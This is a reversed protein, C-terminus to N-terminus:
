ADDDVGSAVGEKELESVADKEPSVREVGEITGMFKISSSDVGDLKGELISMVDEVTQMRSVYEGDKGTQKKVAYFSQTMYSKLLLSRTYILQDDASLESFGVLSVIKELNAAQELMGKARLYADYHRDGIIDPNLATSASELLDIAPYRGEQYVDRSLIVFTDLYPFISRVGYDTMDDSPVFIAEIATVHNNKTSSLREHIEGMESNLTPQYGDESPISNMLISLERGAQAFRYANDMLFLVNKQLDDRFHAALASSAYATRSRIAPNEGMQGLILTTFDFAPTKRLTDYLEQAERSREGVASFVALSDGANSNRILLNNILETLLITKGVGAGGFLGVKGGKLIPAFFDVVKIGTELVEKPIAVEDLVKANTEHIPIMVSKDIPGEPDHADGFIDMVRGLVHEGGPVSLQQGTNIVEMGRHFGSVDTLSLCYYSTDSASLMVELKLNSNQKLSLVDYINPQSELFEVEVVQVNVGVIKGNSLNTKM